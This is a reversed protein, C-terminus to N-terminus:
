ECILRRLYNGSITLGELHREGSFVPDEHEIVANGKYGEENLIAFFKWWDLCGFGPLRYRWWASGQTGVKSLRDNNIETDKLHVMHTKKAFDRTAQYPDVWQWVLHSPDFELGLAEADVASFMAEWSEPTAALSANDSFPRGAPWNEFGMKAGKQTLLEAIPSYVEKFMAVNDALSKEPDYGRPGAGTLVANSMFNAVYIIQSLDALYDQLEEKSTRISPMPVQFSAIIIGHQDLLSKMKERAVGAESSTGICEEPIGIELCEFPGDGAFKVIDESFGTLFGLKM